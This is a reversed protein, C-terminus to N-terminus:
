YLTYYMLLKRTTEIDEDLAVKFILLMIKNQNRLTINVYIRIYNIYLKISTCFIENQTNYIMRLNVFYMKNVFYVYAM